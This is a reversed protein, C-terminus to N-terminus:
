GGAGHVRGGYHQQEREADERSQNEQEIQDSLFDIDELVATKAEVLEDVTEQTEIQGSADSIKGLDSESTDSREQLESQYDQSEDQIDELNSDERDFIEVTVDEAADMASDVADNGEATGVSDLASITERVTETDDTITDLEKLKETMDKEHQEVAEDVEHRTPVESMRGM